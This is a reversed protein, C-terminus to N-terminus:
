ATQYIEKKVRKTYVEIAKLLNKAEDPTVMQYGQGNQAKLIGTPRMDYRTNLIHKQGQEDTWEEHWIWTSEDLCFFERKGSRKVPGFLAGGIQAEQRMLNRYIVTQKKQLESQHSPKNIGLLKALFM